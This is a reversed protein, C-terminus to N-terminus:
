GYGALQQRPLNGTAPQSVHTYSPSRQSVYECDRRRIAYLLSQAFAKRTCRNGPLRASCRSPKQLAWSRSLPQPASCFFLSPALKSTEGCLYTQSICSIIAFICRMNAVGIIVSQPLAIEGYFRPKRIEFTRVAGCVPNASHRRLAKALDRM